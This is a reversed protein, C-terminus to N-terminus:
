CNKHEPQKIQSFNLFQANFAPAFGVFSQITKESYGSKDIEMATWPIQATGTKGAIYYGPVRAKRTYASEVVSVMMAQLQSATKSSIVQGEPEIEQGSNEVIFPKILKGGNAIASFARVLQMPTIEIGQGFSATACNIERGSRLNKNESWIEEQLDIGTKEFFGFREVYDLFNEHGAEKEAFVAGTNISKELVETMTIEGPYTRGDYNYIPWGDIKLMGPDHYTTQPTIKEKDLRRWLSQNSFQGQSLSNKFLLIKFFIWKLRQTNM